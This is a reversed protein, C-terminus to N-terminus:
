DKVLMVKRTEDFGAGFVRVFYLGRACLKGSRTTGNWTFYHTGSSLNGHHLYQVVNGDLTMVVVSVNGTEKVDLQIVTKEGQTANIVNNAISVGGRQKKVDKLKFSWLDLSTLDNSDKLRLAFLPADRHVEYTGSGATGSESLTFQPERCIKMESGNSDKLKFLFSIQNGSSWNEVNSYPVVFDLMGDQVDIDQSYFDTNASSALNSYVNPSPLWVRWKSTLPEGTYNDLIDKNYKSSISGSDPTNDFYATVGSIADAGSEDNYVSAEMTIDYGAHVSGYNQQEENWDHVAKSGETYLDEAFTSGDNDSERNDYAYAMDVADVAFDSIAHADGHPMYTSNAGEEVGQIFTVNLGPIQTAPDVCNKPYPSYCQLYYNQLEYLNMKKNLKYVIGTFHDNSFVVRKQSVVTLAGEGEVVNFSGDDNITVFRLSAATDKVQVTSDNLTIKVDSTKIKKNYVVYLEDGDLKAVTIEFKPEVSETTNIKDAHLVNGALDTIYGQGDYSVTFTEKLSYKKDSEFNISFYLGDQSGTSNNPASVDAPYFRSSQAGASITGDAFTLATTTQKVGTSYTFCNSADYLTSYRIGGSTRRAAEDDFARSGGFIDAAYSDELAYEHNDKQWGIQTYWKPSAASSTFDYGNDWV